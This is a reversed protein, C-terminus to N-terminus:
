NKLQRTSKIPSTPNPIQKRKLIAKIEGRLEEAKGPPLKLCAKEIAVIYESTPPEQSVIVFNPGHLLLKEQAQTLPTKSLTRVWNEEGEGEEKDKERNERNIEVDVDIDHIRTYQHNKSWITEM